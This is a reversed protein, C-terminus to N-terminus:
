ELESESHQGVDIHLHEDVLGLQSTDHHSEAYDTVFESTEEESIDSVTNYDETTNDAKIQRRESKVGKKEVKGEDFRIPHKIYDMKEMINEDVVRSIAVYEPDVVVSVDSDDQPSDYGSPVTLHSFSRVSKNGSTSIKRSKGKDFKLSPVRKVGLSVRSEITLLATDVDAAFLQEPVNEIGMESLLELTSQVKGEPLMEAQGEDEMEPESVEEPQQSDMESLAYSHKRDSFRRCPYRKDWNVSYNEGYVKKLWDLNEQRRKLKRKQYREAHSQRVHIKQGEKMLEERLKKRYWRFPLFTGTSITQEFILKKLHFINLM